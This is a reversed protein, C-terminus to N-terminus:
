ESKRRHESELKDRWTSYKEILDGLGAEFDLILQRYNAELTRIEIGWDKVQPLLELIEAESLDSRLLANNSFVDLTLVDMVDNRHEILRNINREITDLQTEVLEARANQKQM